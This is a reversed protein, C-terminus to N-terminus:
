DKMCKLCHMISLYSNQCSLQHQSLSIYSPTVSIASNVKEFLIKCWTDSFLPFLPKWTCSKRNCRHEDYLMQSVAVSKFGNESVFLNFTSFQINTCIVNLFLYDWKFDWVLWHYWFQEPYMMTITNKQHKKLIEQM